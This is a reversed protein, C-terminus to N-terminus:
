NKWIVEEAISSFQNSFNLVKTLYGYDTNDIPNWGKYWEDKYKKFHGIGTNYAIICDSYSIRPEKRLYYAQQKLNWLGVEINLKVDFMDDLEYNTGNWNNYDTLGDPCIQLIGTAKTRKNRASSIFRSEQAGMGFVYKNPIDYKECGDIICEYIFLAETNSSRHKSIKKILSITEQKINDGYNVIEKIPETSTEIVVTTPTEANINANTVTRYNFVMCLVIIATLLLETLIATVFLIDNNNKM